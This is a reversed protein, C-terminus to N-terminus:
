YFVFTIVTDSRSNLSSTDDKVRRWEKIVNQLTWREQPWRTYWKFLLTLNWKLFKLMNAYKWDFNGYGCVWVCKYAYATCEHSSSQLARSGRAVHWMCCQLRVCVTKVNQGEPLHSVAFSSCTLLLFSRPLPIPEYMDIFNVIKFRFILMALIFTHTYFCLCVCVRKDKCVCPKCWVLIPPSSHASHFCFIQAGCFHCYWLRLLSIHFYVPLLLNCAAHIYPHTHM